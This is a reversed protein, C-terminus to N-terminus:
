PNHRRFAEYTDLLPDVPPLEVWVFRGAATASLDVKDGERAWVGRVIRDRDAMGSSQIIETAVIRGDPGVLGRLIIPRMEAPDIDRRDPLDFGFQFDLARGIRLADGEALSVRPVEGLGALMAGQEEASGHRGDLSAVSLIRLAVARDQPSRAAAAALLGIRLLERQPEASYDMPSAALSVFRRAARAHDAPVHEGGLLLGVLRSNNNPIANARPDELLTVAKSPDYYPSGRDLLIGTHLEISRRTRLEPVANRAEILAVTAPRALWAEQAPLTWHAIAPPRDDFLWLAEAYRALLAPDDAVRHTWGLRLLDLDVDARAPEGIRARLQERASAAVGPCKAPDARLMAAVLERADRRYRMVHPAPLDLVPDDCGRAIERLTGYWTRYEASDRQAAAPAAAAAAFLATLLAFRM